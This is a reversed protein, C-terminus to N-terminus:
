RFLSTLRSWVGREDKVPPVPLPSEGKMIRGPNVRTLLEWAEEAEMERFLRWAGRIYLRLEPQGHFDTALCDVWGRELLRISRERVEPGYRGVLSGHNMQLFVGEERWREVVTMGPDYGRYRELHAVLLDVGQSKLARLVRPTEPPIRFGPWEVMAVPSGGLRLRRDSLDADPADLRVEHGLHFGMDPYARGVAELATRFAEEVRGLRRELAEPELTLSGAIHPTTVIVGVGRERMRGVGELVDDVTRAGDDVGPVLHSHLDVQGGEPEPAVRTV